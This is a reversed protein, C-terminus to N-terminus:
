LTNDLEPGDDNNINDNELCETVKDGHVVIADALELADNWDIPNGENEREEM